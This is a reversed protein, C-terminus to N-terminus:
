KPLNWDITLADGAALSMLTLDQSALLTDGLDEVRNQPPNMGLIVTNGDDLHCALEGALPAHGLNDYLAVYRFTMAEKAVFFWDSADIRAQLEPGHEPPSPKLTVYTKM